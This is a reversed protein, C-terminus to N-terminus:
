KKPEWKPLQLYSTDKVYGIVWWKKGGDFEGMITNSTSSFRYFDSRSSLMKILELNNFEDITDFYIFCDNNIELDYKPQYSVFRNKPAPGINPVYHVCMSSHGDCHCFNCTFNFELQVNKKAEKSWLYEMYIETTDESM